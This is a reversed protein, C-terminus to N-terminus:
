LALICFVRWTMQPITVARTEDTNISPARKSVTASPFWCTGVEVKEGVGVKNGVTRAIFGADVGRILVAVGSSIVWVEVGSRGLRVGLRVGVRFGLRVGVRVGESVM